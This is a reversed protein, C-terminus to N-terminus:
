MGLQSFAATIADCKQEFRAHNCENLFCRVTVACHLSKTSSRPGQNTSYDIDLIRSACFRGGTDMKGVCGTLYSVVAHRLTDYGYNYQGETEEFRWGHCEDKWFAVKDNHWAGTVPNRTLELTATLDEHGPYCDDFVDSLDISRMM